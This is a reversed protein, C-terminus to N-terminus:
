NKVFDKLLVSFEESTWKSKLPILTNRDAFPKYKAKATLRIYHHHFVGLDIMCPKIDHHELQRKKIRMYIDFDAEQIREDWDGCLDLCRRTVIVSHGLCGEIYQNSFNSQRKHNFNKWNPYMLRHMLKLNFYSKPLYKFANRIINWKLRLTKTNETTEIRELGCSTIADFGNRQMSEILLKDWNPAVIIDNNLFAFYEFKAIVIGQNQTYPYSFNDNNRIVDVGMSEFFEASGDTSANDIIILQFPFHSYAKLSEYFLKNM